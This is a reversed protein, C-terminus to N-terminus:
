GLRHALQNIQEIQAPSPFGLTRYRPPYGPLKQLLDKCVTRVAEWPAGTAIDGSERVIAVHQARPLLMTVGEGWTTIIVQSGTKQRNAVMLSCPYDQDTAHPIPTPENQYVSSVAAAILESPPQPATPDLSVSWDRWGRETLILPWLGGGRATECKDQAGWVLMGVAKPDGAGALILFDPSAPVAVVPGRLGLRAIEDIMLLRAADHGDGVAAVVFNDDLRTFPEPASERLRAISRSLCDEFRMSASQLQEKRVLVVASPADLACGLVYHGGLWNYPISGRELAHAMLGSRLYPRIAADSFDPPRTAKSNIEAVMRVFRQITEARSANDGRAWENFLGRAEVEEGQPLIVLARSADDSARAHIGSERLASIAYSVFASPTSPSAVSEGDQPQHEM